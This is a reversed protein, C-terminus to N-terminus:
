SDQVLRFGVPGLDPHPAASFEPAGGESGGALRGEETWHWLWAGLDFLGMPSPPHLGVEPSHGFRPAGVRGLAAHNREGWPFPEDGWAARFEAETPLRKGVQAGFSRCSEVSIDVRPCLPDLNPPLRDEQRRLWRNWTVPFVDMFFPRPAPILAMLPHDGDPNVVGLLASPDHSALATPHLIDLAVEGRVVRNKGDLQVRSEVIRWTADAPALNATALARSVAHRIGIGIAHIHAVAKVKLPTRGWWLGHLGRPPVHYPCTDQGDHNHLKQELPFGVTRQNSTSLM